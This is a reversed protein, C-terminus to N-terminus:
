DHSSVVYLYNLTKVNVYDSVVLNYEILTSEMIIKSVSGIYIGGPLNGIGSTYIKDGINISSNNSIGDVVLNAGDYKLSGYIGNVSVSINSDRNTILRVVSSNDSVSIVVGVLGTQNIVASGLKVGSNAGKYITITDSLNYINRYKVKSIILDVDYSIGLETVRSLDDLENKLYEDYYVKVNQKLIDDKSILFSDINSGFIFILFVLLLIIYKIKEKRM